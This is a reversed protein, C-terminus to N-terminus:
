RSDSLQHEQREIFGSKGDFEVRVFQAECCSCRYKGNRYSMCQDNLKNNWAKKCFPCEPISDDSEVAQGCEPCTTEPEPQFKFDDWPSKNVPAM